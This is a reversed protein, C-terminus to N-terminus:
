KEHFIFTIEGMEIRFGDELTMTGEKEMPTDNVKTPNTTSYNILTYKGNKWIMKAQKKSITMPKLQVHSYIPGAERGFTIDANEQKKTRHFRIEKVANDGSVVELRGPLLVLTDDPPIAIKITDGDLMEVPEPVDMEPDYSSSTKSSFSGTVKKGSTMIIALIVLVIVLLSGLGILIYLWIKDKEADEQQVNSDSAAPTEYINRGQEILSIENKDDIVVIGRVETRKNVEPLQVNAIVKISYGWDDKLYYYSSKKEGSDEGYHTVTGTVVVTSNRFRFPDDLLTKVRTVEQALIVAPAALSILIFFLIARKM